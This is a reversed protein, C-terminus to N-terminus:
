VWYGYLYTVGCERSGYRERDSRLRQGLEYLDLVDGSAATCHVRDRYGGLFESTQRHYFLMSKDILDQTLLNLTPVAYLQLCFNGLGHKPFIFVTCTWIKTVNNASSIEGKTLERSSFFKTSSIDNIRGVDQEIRKREIIAQKCRDLFM